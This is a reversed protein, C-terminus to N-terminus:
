SMVFIRSNRVCFTKYGQDWFITWSIISSALILPIRTMGSNSVGPALKM